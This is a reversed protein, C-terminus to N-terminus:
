DAVGNAIQTCLRDIASRDDVTVDVVPNKAIAFCLPDKRNPWVGVLRFFESYHHSIGKGEWGITALQLICSQAILLRTDHVYISKCSYLILM